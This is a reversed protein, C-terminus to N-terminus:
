IGYMEGSFQTFTKIPKIDEAVQIQLDNLFSYNFDIGIRKGVGKLLRIAKGSYQMYDRVDQEKITEESVQTIALCKDVLILSEKLYALEPKTFTSQGISNVIEDYMEYAEDCTSLNLTEYGQWTLEKADITDYTPTVIPKQVGRRRKMGERVVDLKLGVRVDNMMNKADKNNMTSPIGTRFLDFDGQVAAERMKSASMGSAGSADPDREGASVIDIEKFEYFGHKAKVGNYTNLLSSFDSVRDSGVVMVLKDYKKSLEVAVELATKATSRTQFTKKEKPFAKAMHKFIQDKTLPNKKADQTSSTYVLATGGERQATASLANLLKEHGITPPNFRGFVFVATKMEKRAM